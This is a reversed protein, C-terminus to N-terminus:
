YVKEEEKKSTFYRRNTKQLVEAVYQATLENSDYTRLERALRIVNEKYKSHTIVEEVAKRMQEPKPWETRLNIGLEFYGIRANIENKGEHVGAVVLPLENEIGLMVGGYGGNTIYADAYPMIDGFPIFDEIILNDQPFRDKLASTGNGGTTAIVLVDTDKFAELAPVLIKEIDKEVTGQTVVVIKQYRTLREDTWPLTQKKSQYPLLAGIFRINKGLDSRYYEFGPTGSQLFLSAKKVMLDFVSANLHDIGHEELVKRMVKNPVRFLILDAIMRLFGQKLKGLLSYSPTMGLGVPPLDRSTETLPFVGVSIVPVNMKDKVFPIGTFATDAMMIDFPFTEYIEQLDAYYEPGRLVFVNIIDFKLKAIQGKIADREPFASELESIDVAKKLPLLPIDLRQLKEAYNKSTYWRVDCGLWKLHVALGTLPNFHGDAPFSAFLIKKGKLLEASFVGNQLPFTISM